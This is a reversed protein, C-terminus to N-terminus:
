SKVAFARHARTLIWECSPAHEKALETWTADDDLAPVQEGEVLKVDRACYACETTTVEAHAKDAAVASQWIARAARTRFRAATAIETPGECADKAAVLFARALDAAQRATEMAAEYEVKWDAGTARARRARM